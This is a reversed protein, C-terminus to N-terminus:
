PHLDLKVKGNHFPALKEGRDVAASGIM